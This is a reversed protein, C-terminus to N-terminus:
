PYSTPLPRLTVYWKKPYLYTNLIYFLFELFDCPLGPVDFGHKGVHYELKKSKVPLTGITVLVIVMKAICLTRVMGKKLQQEKKIKEIAKWTKRPDGPTDTITM